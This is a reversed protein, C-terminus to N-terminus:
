QSGHLMGSMAENIARRLRVSAAQKSVGLRDGLDALTARRPVEFYGMEYALVLTQWQSPMMQDEVSPPHPNYVGRVDVEIAKEGCIDNFRQQSPHDPFRIRLEWKGDIGQGELIAGDTELLAAVLGDVGGSWTVQYLHRGEVTTLREVSDVVSQSALAAEIREPSGNSVWFFPLLRDELPVLREIEIFIEPHEVLLAGLAFSEGPFTLDCIAVM